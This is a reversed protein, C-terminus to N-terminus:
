AWTKLFITGLGAMLAIVQIPSDTYVTMIRWGSSTDPSGDIFMGCGDGYITIQMFSNRLSVRTSKSPHYGREKPISKFISNIANTVLKEPDRVDSRFGSFLSNLDLSARQSLDVIFHLHDNVESVMPKIPQRSLTLKATETQPYDILAVNLFHFLHGIFYVEKRLYDGFSKKEEDNPKPVVFNYAVNGNSNELAMYFYPMTPHAKELFAYIIKITGKKFIRGDLKKLQASNDILYKHFGKEFQFQFVNELPEGQPSKAKAAFVFSYSKPLNEM